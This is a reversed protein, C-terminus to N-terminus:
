ALQAHAPEVKVNQPQMAENQQKAMAEQCDLVGAMYSSVKMQLIPSLKSLTALHEAFLRLANNANHEM